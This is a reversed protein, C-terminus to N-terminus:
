GLVVEKYGFGVFVGWGVDEKVVVWCGVSSVVGEKFYWKKLKRRGVRLVWREREGGGFGIEGGLYIEFRFIRDLRVVVIRMCFGIM